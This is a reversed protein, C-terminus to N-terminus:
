SRVVPVDYRQALETVQSVVSDWDASIAEPEDRQSLECSTCDQAYVTGTKGHFLHLWEYYEGGNRSRRPDRSARTDIDIAGESVSVRRGWGPDRANRRDLIAGTIRSNRRATWEAEQRAMRDVAVRVIDTFTGFGLSKLTDVQTETAETLNISTQRVMKTEERQYSPKM